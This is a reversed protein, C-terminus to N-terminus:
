WWCTRRSEANPYLRLRAVIGRGSEYRAGALVGVLDRVSRGGARGQDLPGPHDCYSAAGNWLEVSEALAREGYRLGNNSTGPRIVTVEFERGAGSEGDREGGTAELATWVARRDGGM